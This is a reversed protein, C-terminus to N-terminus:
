DFIEASNQFDMIEKVRELSERKENELYRAVVSASIRWHKGVHRADIEGNAIMRSLHPRSVGLVTAAESTRFEHKAGIVVVGDKREEDILLLFKEATERPLAMSVHVMLADADHDAEYNGIVARLLAYAWNASRQPVNTVDARTLFGDRRCM